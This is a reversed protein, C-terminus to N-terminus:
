TWKTIRICGHALRLHHRHREIELAMPMRTGRTFLLIYILRVAYLLSVKAYGFLAWMLEFPNLSGIREMEVAAQYKWKLRLEAASMDLPVYMDGGLVEPVVGAPLEIREHIKKIFRLVSRKAFFRMQRNPYTTAHDIHVSDRTYIRNVWFAGDTRERVVTRVQDVLETSLHEDSDLFFFWEKTGADLTQNRAGAYDTLRGESDLFAPDQALVTAGFERAIARTDDTSSGDCVIIEEFDRASELARRLTTGSNHTLVALTCPIRANM